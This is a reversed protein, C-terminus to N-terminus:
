KSKSLSRQPISKSVQLPGATNTPSPSTCPSCPRTTPGLISQCRALTRRAEVRLRSSSDLKADILCTWFALAILWSGWKTLGEWRSSFTRTCLMLVDSSSGYRFACINERTPRTHLSLHGYGSSVSDLNWRSYIRSELATDEGNSSRFHLGFDFKSM